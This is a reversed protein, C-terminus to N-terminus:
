RSGTLTATGTGRTPDVSTVNGTMEWDLVLCANL